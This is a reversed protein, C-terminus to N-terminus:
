KKKYIEDFLCSLNDKDISFATGHDYKQGLRNKDKHIGVNFVITIKGRQLLSLFVDFPKLKYYTIKNYRYYKQGFLYRSDAEVYALYSLKRKLKEELLDFTWSSKDDILRNHKDYIILEVIRLAKNVYLQLKYGNPLKVKYRTSVRVQFVHYKSFEKDPYGYTEWLRYVEMFFSDPASHFLTVSREPSKGKVKIEIGYFDPYEFNEHEKGILSEFLLGITGSNKSNGMIWGMKKIKEFKQDLMKFGELM